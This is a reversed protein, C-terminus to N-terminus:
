SNLHTLPIFSGTRLTQRWKMESEEFLWTLKKLPLHWSVRSANLFYGKLKYWSKCPFAKWPKETNNAETAHSLIEPMKIEKMKVVKLTQAQFPDFTPSRPPKLNVTSLHDFQFPTTNNTKAIKKSFHNQSDGLLQMESPKFGKPDGPSWQAVHPTAPNRTGHDKRWRLDRLNWSEKSELVVPPHQQQHLQWIYSLPAVPAVSWM